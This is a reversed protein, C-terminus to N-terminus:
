GLAADVSLLTMRDRLWLLIDAVDLSGILLGQDCVIPLHWQRLACMRRLAAGVTDDAHM